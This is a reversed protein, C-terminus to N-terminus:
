LAAVAQAVDAAVGGAGCAGCAIDGVVAVAVDAGVGTWLVGGDGTSVAGREVEVGVGRKVQGRLDSFSYRAIDGGAGLERIVRAVLADPLHLARPRHGAARESIVDQIDHRAAKLNMTICCPLDGARNGGHTPGISRRGRHARQKIRIRACGCRHERPRTDGGRERAGVGGGFEQEFIM